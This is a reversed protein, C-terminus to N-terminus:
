ILIPLIKHDVKLSMKINEDNLRAHASDKM